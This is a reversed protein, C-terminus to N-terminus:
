GVEQRPRAPSLIIPPKPEPQEVPSSPLFAAGLRQAEDARSKHHLYRQTVATTSHGMWAAVEVLSGVDIATSAFQHRLDHFRLEPLGAAQQAARLRKRLGSPDLAQGVEGCFVLDAGSTFHERQGLTALARALMEILPVSRARRGKTGSVGALYDHSREVRITAAPFDIDQWRLALLEGQRLGSLGATLFLVGTQGGAARQLSLLEEVSYFALGHPKNKARLAEVDAAPNVSTLGYARRAFEFVGHLMAVAKGAVRPTLTGAALQKTRWAEIGRTTVRELELEGFGPLLHKNLASRYDRITAASWGREAQGHEFWREAAVAFTTAASAAGGLGIGFPDLGREEDLMWANLQKQATAKTFANGAPRGPGPNSSAPGIVHRRRVGDLHRIKAYWSTGRTGTYTFCHGTVTPEAKRQHSM